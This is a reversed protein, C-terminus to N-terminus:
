VIFFNFYYVCAEHKWWWHGCCILCCVYLMGVYMCLVDFMKKLFFLFSLFQPVCTHQLLKSEDVDMVLLMCWCSADNVVCCEDVLIFFFFKLFSFICASYPWSMMFEDMVYWGWSMNKGCLDDVIWGVSMLEHIKIWEEWKECKWSSSCTLM